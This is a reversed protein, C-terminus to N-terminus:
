RTVREIHDELGRSVLERYDPQSELLEHHTGSAAVRGDVLYHVVDARDLVLPSTTTVVTTRGSRADRLRDAILAETHADVASTPECALLVEPEAALARALRLRQRQGGSLNRGMSAIVSATSEPLAAVIDEAVATRLVEGITQNDLEFRGAVVDRLPGAFIAADNDAVLIRERVWAPAIEALRIGGWTAESVRLGGLRDVIMAADAPRPGALATFTGTKVDAGSIPDHLDAAGQPGEGTVDLGATESGLRLLACVRRASVFARAVASGDDILAAVPVVLVSVYGYVAVLDGVTITGEAAMRAALWTVVALFLLPLGAGLTPIWSSVAGVRYGEDVLQRSKERYRAAFLDKGGIGNLVRLGQVLDVLRSTLQAQHERYDAGAERLRGLPPGVLVAIVPVGLLAILALVPSISLLLGAVVLYAIVAGFGPGVITLSSGITWVDGIGITAVEGATVKGALDAGLRTSQDIVANLTRFGGDMRVKTMTRHRMIAVYANLAGMALLAMVWGLLTSYHRPRLGDDIARSLLYPPLTLGVMWVTGLTAALVIRRRQSVVLWWLFRAPSRLDADRPLGYEGSM